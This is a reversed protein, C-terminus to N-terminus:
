SLCCALKNNRMRVMEVAKANMEVVMVIKNSKRVAYCFKFTLTKDGQKALEIKTIVHYLTDLTAKPKFTVSYNTGNYPEKLVLKFCDAIHIKEAKGSSQPFIVSKPYDPLIFEVRSDLCM